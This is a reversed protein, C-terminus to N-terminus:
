KVASIDVAIQKMPWEGAATGEPLSEYPLATEKGNEDIAVGGGQPQVLKLTPTIFLIKAKPDLRNLTLVNEVQFVEGKIKGHGGNEQYTYVNGLDDKIEWDVQGADLVLNGSAEYGPTEETYYLITNIPTVSLRKLSITVNQARDQNEAIDVAENDLAKLTASYSLKCPTTENQDMGANEDRGTIGSVRWRFSISDRDEQEKESFFTYNSQGVYLGPGVKKLQESGGVGQTFFGVNIDSDLYPIEGFDKETKITYTLSLTRGDYVGQNLTVEIGNDAKVMDLNLASATYLDYVGTRGGDLFRFIDGVIPVEKAYAPFALGFGCLGVSMVAIAAAAAVFTRKEKKGGGSSGSEGTSKAVRERVMQKVRAKELEDVEAEKFDNLDIDMDNFFEYIDKTDKM